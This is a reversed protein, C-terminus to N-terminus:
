IFSKGIRLAIDPNLVATRDGTHKRLTISQQVIPPRPGVIQDSVSSNLAEASLGYKSFLSYWRHDFDSLEVQGGPFVFASAMFSSGGSRKVMLISYDFTVTTSTIPLAHPSDNTGPALIILSAAERWNPDAPQSNLIAPIPM